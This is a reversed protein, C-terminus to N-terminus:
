IQKMYHIAMQMFILSNFYFSFNREPWNIRTMYSLQYNLPLRHKIHVGLKTNFRIFAFSLFSYGKKEIFKCNSPPTRQPLM